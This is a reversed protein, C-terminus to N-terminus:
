LAIERVPECLFVDSYYALLKAKCGAAEQMGSFIGFVASGSGTMCAGLAGSAKMAEKIHNVETLHMVQEFENGLSAGVECIDSARVAELMATCYGSEAKAAADALAYAKKTDVSVTPKCIVICCSPLPPLSTLKEGIGEALATGGAICFPVDAGVELGLRCLTEKSLKTGNMENLLRLVAAADASGGGLGAQSPITKHIRITVNPAMGTHKFYAAAAKYVTNSEDCPVDKRSCIVRIGPEGAEVKVEDHLSVSQMVMRLLHYGDDRKGIIDLALNIKAFAKASAPMAWKREM